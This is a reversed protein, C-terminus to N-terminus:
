STQRARQDPRTVLRLVPPAGDPRERWGDGNRDRWGYLDLLANARPLSAQSWETRWDPDFGYCHPPIMTQAPEAQGGLVLRVELASDYALAIARRLTVQAPANGGVMPDGMNFFTHSVAPELSRRMQVGQRALFPALRGGPTAIGAFPPPLTLVDREGGLFALWRPQDEEIISIEVRDLMPLRKGRLRQALAQLAPDGETAESDFIQERFRPNSSSCSPRAAVGSCSGSRGPAWRTRWRTPPMPM